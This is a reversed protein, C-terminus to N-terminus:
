IRILGAREKNGSPIVFSRLCEAYAYLNASDYQLANAGGVRQLQLDVGEPGITDDVRLGVYSSEGHQGSIACNVAGPCSSKYGGCAITLSGQVAQLEALLRARDLPEPYLWDGNKKLNVQLDPQYDSRFGLNVSNTAVLNDYRANGDASPLALIDTAEYGQGGSTIQLGTVGGVANVATVKYAAGSGNKTPSAADYAFHGAMGVTYKTGATSITGSELAGLAATSVVGITMGSVTEGGLSLPLTVRQSTGATTAPLLQRSLVPEIFSLQKKMPALARDLEKSVMLDYSLQPHHIQFAILNVSNKQWINALSSEWLIELTLDGMMYLPLPARWPPCIDSLRVSFERTVDADASYLDLVPPVPARESVHEVLIGANNTGDLFAEVVRDTAQERRLSRIAIWRPVDELRSIQTGNAARLIITRIFAAAGVSPPLKPDQGGKGGALTASVAFSLTADADVWSSGEPSVQFVTKRATNTIPDEVRQLLEM